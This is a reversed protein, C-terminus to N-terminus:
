FSIILAAGKWPFRVLDRSKVTCPANRDLIRFGGGSWGLWLTTKSEAAARLYSVADLHAAQTIFKHSSQTDRLPAYTGIVTFRQCHGMYPDVFQDPHPPPLPAVVLTYDIDSTAVFSVVTVKASSGAFAHMTAFV